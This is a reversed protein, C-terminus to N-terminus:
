GPEADPEALRPNAIMQTIATENAAEALTCLVGRCAPDHDHVELNATAIMQQLLTKAQSTFAPQDACQALGERTARLTALIHKARELATAGFDQEIRREATAIGPFATVTM